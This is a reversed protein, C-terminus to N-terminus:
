VVLRPPLPLLKDSYFLSVFGLIGALYAAVLTSRHNYLVHTQQFFSFDPLGMFNCFAHSLTVAPVSGTRILAYSVYSGFLSTYTFQFATQLAIMSMKNEGRKWRMFAHHVHAFGFFMPATWSAANNSMGCALLRPVMCGRFIVEETWPAIVYNRLNIWKQGTSHVPGLFQQLSIQRIWQVVDNLYPKTPKGQAASKLRHEYVKLLTAVFSGTYLIATHLLVSLSYSPLFILKWFSFESPISGLSQEQSQGQKSCFLWPYSLIAGGCVILTALARRQIHIPHDRDLARVKAPVLVYLSGVFATSLISCYVISSLPTADILHRNHCKIWEM